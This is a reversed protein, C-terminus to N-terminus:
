LNESEAQASEIVEGTTRSKVMVKITLKGYAFESKPVFIFFGSNAARIDEFRSSIDMRTYLPAYFAKVVDKSDRITIYANYDDMEANDLVVWGRLSFRIDEKGIQEINFHLNKSVGTSVLAVPRATYDVPGGAVKEFCSNIWVFREGDDDSLYLGTTYIGKELEPTSAFFRVASKTADLWFSQRNEIVEYLAHDSRFFVRIKATGSKNAIQNFGGRFGKGEEFDNNIQSTDCNRNAQLDGKAHLSFAAPKKVVYSKGSLAHYVKDANVIYVLFFIICLLWATITVNKDLFENM